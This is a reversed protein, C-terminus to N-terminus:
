VLWWTHSYKWIHLYESFKGGVYEKKLHKELSHDWFIFLLGFLPLYISWSFIVGYLLAIWPLALIFHLLIFRFFVLNSHLMLPFSYSVHHIKKRLISSKKNYLLCTLFFNSVLFFFNHFFFIYERIRGADNSFLCEFYNFTSNWFPPSLSSPFHTFSCAQEVIKRKVNAQIVRVM